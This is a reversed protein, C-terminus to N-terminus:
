PKAGDLPEGWHVADVKGDYILWLQWSLEMFSWKKAPSVRFFILLSM